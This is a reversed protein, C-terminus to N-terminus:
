SVPGFTDTPRVLVSFPLRQYRVWLYFQYLGEDWRGKLHVGVQLEDTDGKTPVLRPTQLQRPVSVLDGSLCPGLGPVDM